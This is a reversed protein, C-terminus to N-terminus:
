GEDVVLALLAAACPVRPCARRRLVTAVKSFSRMLRTLKCGRLVERSRIASVFTRM